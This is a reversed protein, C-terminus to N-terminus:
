VFSKFKEQADKFDKEDPHKAAEEHRKKRAEDMYHPHDKPLDMFKKTLEPDIKGQCCFSATVTNGNATFLEMTTKHCDEAHKSDPYAGLTFFYGVKKNHISKIFELAEDNPHSQDIWFGVIIAEYNEVNKVAAIEMFDTGAPMVKAIAEAVKKTNGTKSSYTVLINM